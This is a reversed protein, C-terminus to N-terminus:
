FNYWHGVRQHNKHRTNGFTCKLDHSEVSQGIELCKQHNFNKRLKSM